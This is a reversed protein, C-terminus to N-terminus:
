LRVRTQSREWAAVEAAPYLVNRGVKIGRPGTRQWRWNQLTRRDLGYREALQDITLLDDLRVPAAAAM